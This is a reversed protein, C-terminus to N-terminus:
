ISPRGHWAVIRSWNSRTHSQLRNPNSREYRNGPINAKILGTLIDVSPRQTALILHIGTARAKQALRVISAEMEVGGTMMMDAMEDIVIVIYPLASFGKKDNYGEINRVQNDKFLTYRQEMEAIAWKLANNVKDMDTIVPTLLHPIGNYDSLEVQKPDVMIFRLQDPTKYMLMSLIFSNTLVSKGSGTAGAVLLHPMRQIDAIINKGAINKGITVPLRWKPDVMEPDSVLERVYVAERKTNPVEIGVFSKGPIPVEIRVTNAAVALALALDNKLNAIKSVKTGLPIDLAYQTVTPGIAVEEVKAHIGFSKLTEEIVESKGRIDERVQKKQPTANLLDLPPLQWDPYQLEYNVLTEDGNGSNRVKIEPQLGDTFKEDSKPQINDFNSDLRKRFDGFTEAAKATEPEEVDVQKSAISTKINKFTQGLKSAFETITMMLMLPISLFLLIFAFLLTFQAFLQRELLRTLHYGIIGGAQGQYALTEIETKDNVSTFIILIAIFFLIQGLVSRGNNFTHRINFYLLSLNLFIIGAIFTVEGFLNKTTKLLLSDSDVLYTLFSLISLLLLILALISKSEKSDYTLAQKKPPRGRRKRAM